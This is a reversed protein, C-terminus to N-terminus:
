MWCFKFQATIFANRNIFMFFWYTLLVCYVVIAMFIRNKEKIAKYLEPIYFLLYYDFFYAIRLSEYFNAAFACFYRGILIMSFMDGHKSIKKKTHRGLAYAFVILFGKALLDAYSIDGWNINPNLKLYRNVRAAYRNSLLIIAPIFLKIIKRYFIFFVILTSVFLATWCHTSKRKKIFAVIVFFLLPIISSSHFLFATIVYMAAKKNSKRYVYCYYALFLFGQAIFGRMVCLSVNYFFFLFIGMGLTLSVDKRNIYLVKFIPFIILFEVAFYFGPLFEIKGFFYLLIAFLIDTQVPMNIYFNVFGLAQRATSFNNIIYVNNDIGVSPDRVAALFCPILISIWFFIRGKSEKRTVNVNNTHFYIDAIEMFLLTVAFCILYVMVSETIGM